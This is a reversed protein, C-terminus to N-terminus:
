IEWIGICNNGLKSLIIEKIKNGAGANKAEDLTLFIGEIEDGSLLVFVSKLDM